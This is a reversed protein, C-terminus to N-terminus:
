KRVIKKERGFGSTSTKVNKCEPMSRFKFVIRGAYEGEMLLRYGLIEGGFFSPENQHTHFFIRGGVLEEATSTSLKWDGSEFERKEKDVPVIKGYDEIFHIERAKM